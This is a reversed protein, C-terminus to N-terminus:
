ADQSLSAHANDIQRLLGTGDSTLDGQLDDLGAHVGSLHDSAKLSLSLGQGQHIMLVDSAYKISPRRLRSTGIEDHLQNAAYRDCFVTVVVLERQFLAELQETVNAM